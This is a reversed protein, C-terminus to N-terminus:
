RSHSCRLRASSPTNEGSPLYTQMLLVSLSSTEMMSTFVRRSTARTFTPLTGFRSAAAVIGTAEPLCYFDLSAPPILIGGDYGECVEGLKQRPDCITLYYPRM